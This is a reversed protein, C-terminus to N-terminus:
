SWTEKLDNQIIRNTEGITSILTLMKYIGYRRVGELVLQQAQLQETFDTEIKTSPRLLNMYKDVVPWTRHM